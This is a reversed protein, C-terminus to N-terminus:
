AAATHRIDDILMQLRTEGGFTRLNLRFAADCRRGPPLAERLDAQGFWIGEVDAGLEAFRLALHTSGVVRTGDIAINEVVFRPEGHAEGFPGLKRTMEYTEWTVTRPYVRCDADLRPQAPAEVGARVLERALGARLEDVREPRVSFGAARAHGGWADLLDAQTGLIDSLPVDAPARASGRVMGNVSTGVFAPLGTHEVLRSAALGVVGLSFEEGIAFVLPEAPDIQSAAADVVLQTLRRREINLNDLEHAVSEAEVSQDAQLLRLALDARALRGAANLRPAYGFAIDTADIRTIPRRAIEGLARLGRRQTRRLVDLGEAVFARNEDRLPALDAVTGLAVLDLFEEPYPLREPLEEALAQVLKYAVGVGALGGFPYACGPQNPNLVAVAGSDAGDGLHHDTVITDVGHAKARAILDASGTGCDVTVMLGPGQAGIADIADGNLGYGETLREPIYPTAEIGLMAFTEVLLATGTVGDVDYDGYVHVREGRELAQAVRTVAADMGDLLYPDHPPLPGDLFERIATDDSYGRNHLLQVALPPIDGLRAFLEQPARRRIDWVAGTLSSVGLM